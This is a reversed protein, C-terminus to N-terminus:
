NRWDIWPPRTASGHTLKPPRAPQGTEPGDIGEIRIIAAGITLTDADSVQPVGRIEAAALPSALALLTLILRLTFM